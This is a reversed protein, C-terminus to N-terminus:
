KPLTIHTENAGKESGNEGERKRKLAKLRQKRELAKEELSSAAMGKAKQQKCVWSFAM